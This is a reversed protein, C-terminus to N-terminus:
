VREPCKQKSIPRSGGRYQTVPAVRRSIVGNNSKFHASEERGTAYAVFHYKLKLCM